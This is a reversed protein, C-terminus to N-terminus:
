KRGAEMSKLMPSQRERIAVAESEASIIKQLDLSGEEGPDFIAAEPHEEHLIKCVEIILARFARGCGAEKDIEELRALYERCQQGEEGLALAEPVKSADRFEMGDIWENGSQDIAEIDCNEDGGLRQAIADREEETVCFEEIPPDSNKQTVKYRLLQVTDGYMRYIM